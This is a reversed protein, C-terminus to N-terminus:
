VILANDALTIGMKGLTLTTIERSASVWAGSEGGQRRHLSSGDGFVHIDTDARTLSFAWGGCANIAVGRAHTRIARQAQTRPTSEGGREAQEQLQGVANPIDNVSDAPQFYVTGNAAETFLLVSGDEFYYGGFDVGFSREIPFDNPKHRSDAVVAYFDGRPGIKQALAEAKKM